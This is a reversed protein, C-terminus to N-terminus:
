KHQLYLLHTVFPRYLFGTFLVIYWHDERLEAILAYTSTMPFYDAEAKFIGFKPLVENLFSKLEKFSLSISLEPCVCVWVPACFLGTM